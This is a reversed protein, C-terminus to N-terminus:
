GRCARGKDKGNATRMADFGVNSFLAQRMECRRSVLSGVVQTPSVSRARRQLTRASLQSSEDDRAHAARKCKGEAKGRPHPRPIKALLAEANASENRRARM